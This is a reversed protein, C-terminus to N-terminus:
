RPRLERQLEDLRDQESPWLPRTSRLLMWREIEEVSGREYSSGHRPISEMVGSQENLRYTRGERMFEYDDSVELRDLNAIDDETIKFVRSLNAAVDEGMAIKSWTRDKWMGRTTVPRSAHKDISWLLTLIEEFFPSAHHSTVSQGYIVGDRDLAAVIERQEASDHYFFPDDWAAPVREMMFKSQPIDLIRPYGDHKKWKVGPVLGNRDISRRIQAVSSLHRSWASRPHHGRAYTGKTSRGCGCACKREVASVATM